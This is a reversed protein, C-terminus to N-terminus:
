KTHTTDHVYLMVLAYHLVKLLDKRNYGDKKGYRSAYKIVSGLVFGDGLGSDIILELAQVAEEDAQYHEGYTGDVYKRLQDLLEPENYKYRIRDPEDQPVEEKKGNIADELKKIADPPLLYPTPDPKTWDRPGIVPPTRWVNPDNWQGFNDINPHVWVPKLVGGGSLNGKVMGSFDAPSFYGNEPTKNSM